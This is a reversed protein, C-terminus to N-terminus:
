RTSVSAELAILSSAFNLLSDVRNDADTAANYRALEREARGLFWKADRAVFAEEVAETHDYASKADCDDSEDQSM